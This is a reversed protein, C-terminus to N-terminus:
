TDEAGAIVVGVDAGAKTEDPSLLDHLRIPPSWPKLVPVMGLRFYKEFTTGSVSSELEFCVTLAALEFRFWISM